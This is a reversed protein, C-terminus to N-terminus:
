PRPRECSTFVVLLENMAVNCYNTTASRSQGCRRAGRSVPGFHREELLTRLHPAPQQVAPQMGVRVLVRLQALLPQLSQRQRSAHRHMGASGAGANEVVVPQRHNRVLAQVLYPSRTHHQRMTRDLLQRYEAVVIHRANHQGAPHLPQQMQVAYQGALTRGDDSGAIVRNADREVQAVGPARHLCDDPDALCIRLPNEEVSRTVGPDAHDVAQLRERHSGCASLDFREAANVAGSGLESEIAVENDSRGPM